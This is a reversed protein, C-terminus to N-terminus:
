KQLFEKARIIKIKQFEGVKLLHRDGTIIHEANAELATEIFKNDSEHEVAKVKTKTAIQISNNLYQKLTFDRAKKTTRKTIEHRKLVEKLEQIIEKNTYNEIETLILKEFIKAPAGEKAILASVVINTDLVVKPKDQNTFSKM